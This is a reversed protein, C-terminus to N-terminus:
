FTEKKDINVFADYKPPLSSNDDNSNELTSNEPVYEQMFCSPTPARLSSLPRQSTYGPMPYVQQNSPTPPSYYSFVYPQNFGNASPVFSNALYPNFGKLFNCFM